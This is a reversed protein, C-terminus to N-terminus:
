FNQRFSGTAIYIGTVRPYQADLSVILYGMIINVYEEASTNDAWDGSMLDTNGHKWRYGM